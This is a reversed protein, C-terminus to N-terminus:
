AEREDLLRNLEGILYEPSVGAYKGADAVTSRRILAKVVPNNIKKFKPDKQILAEPLWPYAELVDALRTEPTVNLKQLM